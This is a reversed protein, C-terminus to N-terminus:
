KLCNLILGPKANTLEASGQTIISDAQSLESTQKGWSGTELLLWLLISVSPASFCSAAIRRWGGEGLTCHQDSQMELDRRQVVARQCELPKRGEELVQLSRRESTGAQQSAESQARCGARCLFTITSLRASREQNHEPSLRIEAQGVACCLGEELGEDARACM